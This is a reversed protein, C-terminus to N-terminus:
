AQTEARRDTASPPGATRRTRARVYADALAAARRGVDFETVAARAARRAAARDSARLAALVARTLDDASAGSMTLGGSDQLDRAAASAVAVVPTSAALSELFTMPQV